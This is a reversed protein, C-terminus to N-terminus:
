NDLNIIFRFGVRRSAVKDENGNADLVPKDSSYGIAELMEGLQASYADVGCDASLCFAKVSDARNQSLTLNYDYEGDSDTHGEVMIKSVFGTYKEDFVVGCYVGMFQKLLEKGEDSVEYGDVPFLVSADMTIEGSEEDITVAIGANQFAAALDSLLDAKMQVIQQLKEEALNELKMADELSLNGGLSGGNRDSSTYIYYYTKNGDTLIIGDQGCLFYVMQCTETEESDAKPLTITILGNEEFKALGYRTDNDDQNSMFLKSYETGERHLMYIYDTNMLGEVGQTLYADAYLDLEDSGVQLGSYMEVTNTGDTLTLKRGEFSFTYTFTMSSMICRVHTYDENYELKDILKLTLTNGDVFYECMNRTMNGSSTYFYATLFNRGQVQNLMHNMTHKGATLQYPITTIQDAYVDSLDHEVYTVAKAYEAEGDEGGLIRYDGYFMQENYELDAYVQQPDLTKAPTGLEIEAKETGILLGEATDEKESSQREGEDKDSKEDEKEGCAVLSFMMLAALLLALLRKM